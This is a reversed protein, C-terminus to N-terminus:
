LGATGSFAQMGRVIAPRSASRQFWERLRPLHTWDIDDLFSVCITYAAIDAMSFHRGAMWPGDALFHEAQVLAGVARRGLLAPAEAFGALRLRFGVHSLAIVDTLFYFYREMVLARAPDDFAPALTGPAMQDAFFVIANSQSLASSNGQDTRLLVPVKGAPNLARFQEGLHEAHRLDVLEVTYPLGAEELAIAARFCNGTPAGFLTYSSPM